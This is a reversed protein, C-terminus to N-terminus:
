GVAYKKSNHVEIQTFHSVNDVRCRQGKLAGDSSSAEANSLAYGM